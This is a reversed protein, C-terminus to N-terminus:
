ESNQQERSSRKGKGRRKRRGEDSIGARVTKKSQGGKLVGGEFERWKGLSREKRQDKIRNSRRKFGISKREKPVTKGGLFDIKGGYYSGIQTVV